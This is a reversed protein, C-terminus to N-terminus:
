EQRGPDNEEQLGNWQWKCVLLSETTTTTLNRLPETEMEMEKYMIIIVIGEGHVGGEWKSWEWEAKWKGNLM